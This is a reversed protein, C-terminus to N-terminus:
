WCLQKGNAGSVCVRAYVCLCVCVYVNVFMCMPVSMHECVCEYLRMHFYGYECVNVSVCM